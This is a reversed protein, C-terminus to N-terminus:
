FLLLVIEVPRDDPQLKVLHSFNNVREFTWFGGNGNKFATRNQPRVTLLLNRNM